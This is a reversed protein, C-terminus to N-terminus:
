GVFVIMLRRWWRGRRWLLSFSHSRACTLIQGGKGTRFVMKASIIKNKEIVNSRVM